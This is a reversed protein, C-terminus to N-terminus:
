REVTVDGKYLVEQGDIFAVVAYYVYVAPNVEQGKFRGNWGLAPDNPQFNYREFVREGWRSYIQFSKISKVSRADAYVTVTENVGDGNPSFVNPIFVNLDKKVRLLLKADDSCGEKTVVLIRYATSTLPTDVMTTLCTDCRLWTSPTWKVLSIESPPVNVTAEIKYSEGLSVVIEPDVSVQFLAPEVITADISTACGNADEISITYDGPALNSILNGAQGFTGGTVSYTLPPKAGLVTDILVSGKLGVCAPNHITAVARPENPAIVVPDTDTCGNGTATVSLTYTGPESILPTLTNGGSVIAGGSTNWAYVLPGSGGTATGNLLKTQGYCDISFPAGADAVPYSKDANVTVSDSNTCGNNPDVGILYYTNPTTVNVSGGSGVVTTDQGAVTAWKFQIGPFPSGGSITVSGISCTLTGPPNIFLLPYLQNEGIVVKATDSCFSLTDLIVFQYTGPNNIKLITGGPYTVGAGDVWIANANITGEVKGSLVIEDIICDLIDDPSAVINAVPNNRIDNVQVETTDACGNADVIVTYKGKKDVTIVSQTGAGVIHGNVSSWAYTPNALNCYGAIDVALTVCTIPEPTSTTAVPKEHFVIPTGVSVVTCFHALNVNGSADKNGAVASIYYTTEYSMLAPNFCFTPQSNRAIEGVILTDNGKHLIFQLLDNNDLVQGTADYNATICGTGCHAIPATGMHGVVTSCSALIINFGCVATCGKADTVTVNYNSVGLNNLTLTGAPVNNKVSGPSWLVSYPATGGSIQIDANGDTFGPQSVTNVAACSIQVAANPQTIVFNTSTTCGVADTVTVTYTGATLSGPDEVNGISAPTWAYNFPQTGGTLALNIAGTNDGFCDVNLHTGIANVGATNNNVVYTASATCAGGGYVSVTYTGPTLNDLNQTTASTSWNITYNLTGPAISLNIAGNPGVCATNPQTIGSLNPIVVDEPVTFNKKVQCGNNGIVTVSYNGSVINDLDETSAGTNWTFTYPSEGGNITINVGGSSQGCLAQTISESITPAGADDAVTFSATNTCTGGASVTVTYTGPAIANLDQTLPGSSWKYSYGPGGSPAAPNVNLDISGNLSVCSTNAVTTGALAFSIDNEPVTITATETCNNAGTVTVTYIGGGISSLDETTQGSNWKYNFPALGGLVSLNIGADSLNCLEPTTNQNLTPYTRDDTIFYTASAICSGSETVQVTYTGAPINTLDQTTEGTSWLYTYASAPTVTLDISGNVMACNNYPSAVGSLTFTNSNNAVNLTTDSSCGNADTVTFSYNGPFINAINETTAGNSWAFVYPQTGSTVTMDISGNSQSCIAAVVVADLKPDVTNNSVIYTGESTCGV